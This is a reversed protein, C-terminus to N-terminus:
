QNWNKVCALSTMIADPSFSLLNMSKKYKMIDKPRGWREPCVLCTKMSNLTNIVKNNIPLKTITDIWVWDVKNSYKTVLNLPEDESYRVAIAREGKRSSKYLYPFEVDLLFFSKIKRERVLALVDNEIGSEKINLVLTGHQYNDLFDILNDGSLYPNHNLILKSGYSRIDIECGFKFPISKLKSVENIRHIIFEPHKNM